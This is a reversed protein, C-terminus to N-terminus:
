EVEVEVPATQEQKADSSGALDDSTYGINHPDLMEKTINEKKISKQYDDHNRQLLGLEAPSIHQGQNIIENTIRSADQPTELIYPTLFIMLDIKERQTENSKFLNGILPIYSLVPVRNRLAKEAEKILGGLVVTEGNAVLVNTKIERKSTIPTNSGQTTLLDEV